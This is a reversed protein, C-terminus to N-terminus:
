RVWNEATLGPVRSFDGDSTVVTCSPVTLVIAAIMLDVVQM